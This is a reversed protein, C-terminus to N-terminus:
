KMGGNIVRLALQERKELSALKKEVEMLTGARVARGKDDEYFWGGGCPLVTLNGRYLHPYNDDIYIM